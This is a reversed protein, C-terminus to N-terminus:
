ILCGHDLVNFFLYISNLIKIGSDQPEGGKNDVTSVLTPAESAEGEAAGNDEGSTKTVAKTDSPNEANPNKNLDQDSDNNEL